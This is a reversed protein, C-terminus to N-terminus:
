STKTLATCIPIGYKELGAQVEKSLTGVAVSAVSELRVVLYPKKTSILDTCLQVFADHAKTEDLLAVNESLLIVGDRKQLIVKMNVELNELRTRLTPGDPAHDLYILLTLPSM